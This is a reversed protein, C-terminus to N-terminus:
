DGVSGFNAICIDIDVADVEGSRDLDIFGNKDGWVGSGVSHGFDAIVLDIDAADIEESGDADGNVLSFDLNGVNGSTSDFDLTQRLWFGHRISMTGPGTPVPIRFDGAPSLGVQLSIVDQPNAGMRVEIEVGRPLHPGTTDGLVITGTAARSPGGVRGLRQALGQYTCFWVEGNNDADISTINHPVAFSTLTALSSVTPITTLLRGTELDFNMKPWILWKGYTDAFLYCGWLDVGLETGRYVVGSLATVGVAHTYDFFPGYIGAPMPDDLGSTRNRRGEWQPWGFNLGSAGPAIFNAEERQGAGVDGIFLGGFGNNQALDFGFKWPNRLGRHFVAKMAGSTNIYPNDPPIGYNILPDPFDDTNVDVRLVKGYPQALDQPWTAQGAGDGTAIYLYGDAGFKITGGNHVSSTQSFKLIPRMSGLDAEVPNTASMQYERIETAVGSGVQEVTANIYFKRSHPSGVMGYEPHFALGLLGGEAWNTVGPLTLVTAIEAGTDKNFARIRGVNSTGWGRQEVMFMRQDDSPDAILAVSRENPQMTSTLTFQAIGLRAFSAVAAM